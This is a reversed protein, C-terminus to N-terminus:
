SFIITRVEFIVEPLNNIKIGKILVIGSTSQRVKNETAENPARMGTGGSLDKARKKIRTIRRVRRASSIAGIAFYLHM